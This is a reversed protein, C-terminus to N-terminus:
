EDVWFLYIIKKNTKRLGHIFGKCFKSHYPIFSVFKEVIQSQFWSSTDHIVNNVIKLQFGLFIQFSVSKLTSYENISYAIGYKDKTIGSEFFTASSSFHFFM